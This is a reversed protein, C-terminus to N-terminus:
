RPDPGEPVNATQTAPFCRDFLANNAVQLVVLLVVGVLMLGAARAAAPSPLSSRRRIIWAAAGALLLCLLLIDVLHGSPTAGLASQAAQWETGDHGRGVLLFRITYAFLPVLVVGLVADAAPRPHRAYWIPACVVLLVTAAVGGLSMWTEQAWEVEDRLVYEKAPTPVV